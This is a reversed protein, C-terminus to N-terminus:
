SNEVTQQSRCLPKPTTLLAFTSTKTSSEQKKSSGASTPLKIEPEEAKELVLKYMQFNVTWTNSINLLKYIIIFISYKKNDFITISYEKNDVSYLLHLRISHKWQNKGVGQSWLWGLIIISFHTYNWWSHHNINKNTSDLLFFLSVIPIYTPIESM